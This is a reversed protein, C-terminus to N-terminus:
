EPKVALRFSSTKWEMRINIVIGKVDKFRERRRRM